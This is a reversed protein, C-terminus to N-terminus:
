PFYEIVADVLDSHTRRDSLSGSNDVPGEARFEAVEKWQQEARRALATGRLLVDIAVSEKRDEFNGQV